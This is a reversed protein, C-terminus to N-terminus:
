ASLLGLRALRGLATELQQAGGEPRLRDLLEARDRTGDLAVVLARGPEDDLRVNDHRLSTVIGAGAAAQRRALPYAEPKEGPAVVPQAPHVHLEVLREAHAGLLAEGIRQPTLGALDGFRIARPWARALRALVDAFDPDSTEIGDGSAAVWLPLLRTAELTRRVAVDARCLLTQRFMRNLIFDLYQERLVVDDPLAEFAAAVDDPLGGVRSDALHAEALFQLGHRAAHAAFEHFYVPTNVDALEDHFLVWDPRALMRRMHDSLVAGFAGQGTRALLEMFTRAQAMRREPDDVSEVHFRLVDRAMDRLYSGPYANYSVYAVGRPALLRGCVALLADRARPPIWSYLGHAIVYDFTGLDDPLAAVDAQLLQVNGAGLEAALAEGRAIPDHALDVGVFSARPLGLAMPILNGGDGCGLELV